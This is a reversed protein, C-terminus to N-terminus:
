GKVKGHVVTLVLSASGASVHDDGLYRVEVQKEGTSSFTGTRLTATGDSLDASDRLVGDVYLEVRGTPAVGTAGVTVSVTSGDKKAQLRTPSATATVTSAAKAVTVELSSSSPLNRDDGLYAVTLTHAGPQLATGPVTITATGDTVPASGVVTDGDRLEVTGTAPSDSTVTATVTGDTGYVLDGATASVSSATVAPLDLGVIEPDHDSARFMNPQYFDTVNYNDRSYEFAVSEGSNINWIDAGAVLQQMAPNALVHDLSGSMGQFSYTTEDPTDSGIAQYGADYLVQMPDEQTYSNFDGTLLVRDTGRSAAFDDAFPVLAQAQAIRDPNANGQGTGDDVGSGKSKFHNVVVAFTQADSAGKPKFAQALPERANDFASAGVLVKSAGVLSITSPDYIFATRIVDQSATPPLDAADPSPAFAWRQSGADANLAAVLTSLADDRNSEGLAVSNEIEELSVVDAGLANIAAVIKTQQRTLDDSEAAGRPGTPGCDNVTNLNGERDKYYSCTHGAAAYDVGTTNFYNLVNFTAVHLNGAVKEPATTRTNEFTATSAGEDTVRSTPQLKWTSNRFELVM